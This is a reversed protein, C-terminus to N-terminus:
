HPLVLVQGPVILAQSGNALYGISASNANLITTWQVGDGYAGEAIEWLTDGSTVTHSDGTIDGQNYDNAVWSTAYYGGTGTATSMDQENDMASEMVDQAGEGNLDEDNGASTLEKIKDIVSVSDETDSTQETSPTNFYNYAGFVLALVFLGGVILALGDRTNATAKEKSM